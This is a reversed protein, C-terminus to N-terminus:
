YLLIIINTTYGLYSIAKLIKFDIFWSHLWIRYLYTRDEFPFYFLIFYLIHMEIFILCYVKTEKHSNYKYHQLGFMLEILIYSMEILYRHM